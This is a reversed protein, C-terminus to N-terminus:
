LTLMDSAIGGAIRPWFYMERVVNRLFPAFIAVGTHNPSSPSLSYTIVRLSIPLVFRMRLLGWTVTAGQVMRPFTIPGSNAADARM